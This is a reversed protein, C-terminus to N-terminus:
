DGIDVTAARAKQKHVVPAATTNADAGGAYQQNTNYTTKAATYSTLAVGQSKPYVHKDSSDETSALCAFVM